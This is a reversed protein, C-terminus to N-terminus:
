HRNSLQTVRPDFENVGGFIDNIQYVRVSLFWQSMCMLILIEVPDSNFNDFRFLNEEGMVGM